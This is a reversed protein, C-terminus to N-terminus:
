QGPPHFRSYYFTEPYAKGFVFPLPGFVHSYFGAGRQGSMVTVRASIPYTVTMVPAVEPIMLLRVNSNNIPEILMDGYAVDPKLFDFPKAGLQEMYYQLGWHGQFHVVQGQAIQKRTFDRALRRSAGAFQYDGVAVWLAILAAPALPLYEAWRRRGGMVDLQRAVLIGAAPGIALLSRANVTWNVYASFVITGFVLLGLLLAHEDRKKWVDNVTLALIHLGGFLFVAAQLAFDWPLSLPPVGQIFDPTFLPVALSALAALIVVKALRRRRWLVPLYFLVSAFCGGMFCLAIVTTHFWGEQQGSHPRVAYAAASAFLGTGYLRGTYYEYALGVALPALLYLAWPGASRRRALAYAFALPVASLAFYKTMLAASMCVAAVVFLRTSNREIAWVWAALASVYLALMLIDSMVNTSSVVFAPTLTAVLSALLPRQTMPMALFYTAIGLAAAPLLMAAHLAPESWGLVLAALALYFSVGPPNKNFESVPMDTGYWNMSFGYFDLPYELIRRAVALYVTDDIHFAKNIFPLLCVVPVLGAILAPRVDLRKADHKPM